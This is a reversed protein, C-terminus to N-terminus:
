PHTTTQTYAILDYAKPANRLFTSNLPNKFARYFYCCFDIFWINSNIINEKGSAFNSKNKLNSIGMTHYKICAKAPFSTGM